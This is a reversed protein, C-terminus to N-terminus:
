KRIEDTDFVAEIYAGHCDVYDALRKHLLLQMQPIGSWHRKNQEKLM